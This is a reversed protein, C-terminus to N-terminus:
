AWKALMKNARVIDAEGEPLAIPHIIRLVLGKATFKANVM